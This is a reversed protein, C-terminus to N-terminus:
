LDQSLQNELNMQGKEEMSQKLHGRSSWIRFIFKGGIKIPELINSPGKYSIWINFHSLAWKRSLM